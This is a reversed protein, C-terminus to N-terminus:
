LGRFVPKRKEMFAKTGEAADASGAVLVGYAGEYSLQEEFSNVQSLYILRRGMDVSVSAKNAIERAYALAAELDKGEPVLEDILGLQRCQEANFIRGTEVMMLANPLGVIRPLFWTVGCDPPMGVNVFVAGMRATSDGFRRDCALAYALGAGVAHGHIAAIIPKDVAILQRTIEFFPGGPNLRQRRSMSHTSASTGPTPNEQDAEGSLWAVDGGACFSRGEGTLVIAHVEDRCRLSQLLGALEGAMEWSVANLKDPRNLTILGIGDDELDFSIYKLEDTAM